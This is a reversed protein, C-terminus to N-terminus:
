ILGLSNNNWRVYKGREYRAGIFEYENDLLNTPPYKTQARLFDFVGTSDSAFFMKMVTDITFTIFEGPQLGQLCITLLNDNSDIFGACGLNIVSYSNNYISFTQGVMSRIYEQYNINVMGRADDHYSNVYTSPIDIYLFEDSPLMGTIEVYNGIKEFDIVKVTASQAISGNQNIKTYLGLSRYYKGDRDILDDIDIINKKRYTFGGVRLNGDFTTNDANLVINSTNFNVNGGCAWMQGTKFNM